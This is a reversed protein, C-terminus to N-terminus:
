DDGGDEPDALPTNADFKEGSEYGDEEGPNDDGVLVLHFSDDPPHFETDPSKGRQHHSIM